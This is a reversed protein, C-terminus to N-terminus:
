GPLMRFGAGSNGLLPMKVPCKLASRIRPNLAPLGRL